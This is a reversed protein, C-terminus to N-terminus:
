KKGDSEGDHFKKWWAKCKGGMESEKESVDKTVNPSYKLKCLNSNCSNILLAPM